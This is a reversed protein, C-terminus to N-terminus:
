MAVEMKCAVMQRIDQGVKFTNQYRGMKLNLEIFSMTMQSSKYKEYLPDEKGLLQNFLHAHPSRKLREIMDEVKKQTEANNNKKVDVATISKRKSLDKQSSVQNGGQLGSASGQGDDESEQAGKNMKDYSINKRERESKRTIPSLGRATGGAMDPDGGDAGSPEGTEIRLDGVDKPSGSDQMEPNLNTM